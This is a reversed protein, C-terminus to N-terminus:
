FLSLQGYDKAKEAGYKELYNRVMQVKYETPMDDPIGFGGIKPSVEDEGRSCCTAHIDASCQKAEVTITGKFKGRLTGDDYFDNYRCKVVYDGETNRSFDYEEMVKALAKEYENEMKKKRKGSSCSSM